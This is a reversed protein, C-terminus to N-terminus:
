QASYLRAFRPRAATWEEPLLGLLAVDVRAGHKLVQSRLMGELHFGFKQHMEVVKQNTALVECNLKQLGFEGFALDLLKFEVVGGVGKGQMEENLYFAWSARRHLTDLQQLSVLGVVAGQFVVTWARTAARTRLSAIWSAHEERSIEHDTYMYQRVADSNRLTRIYEIVEAGQEALSVFAVSDASIKNM